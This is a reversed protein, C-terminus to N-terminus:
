LRPLLAVSVATFVLLCLAIANTAARAGRMKFRQAVAVLFLVSAFLVTDRVYKEATGRSATGKNFTASANANLQKAKELLPNRYQPMFAPGPPASPDNFPDTKLWLRFAAAYDATFRKALM